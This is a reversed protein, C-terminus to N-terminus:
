QSATDSERAAENARRAAEQMELPFGLLFDLSRINAQLDRIRKLDNEAILAAILKEKRQEAEDKIIAWGRSGVLGQLAVAEDNLAERAADNM